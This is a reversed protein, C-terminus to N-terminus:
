YSSIQCVSIKMFKDNIVLSFYVTGGGKRKKANNNNDDNIMVTTMIMPITM